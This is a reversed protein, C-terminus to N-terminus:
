IQELVTCIIWCGPDKLLLCLLSSLPFFLVALDSDLNLLFGELEVTNARKRRMMKTHSPLRFYPHGSFQWLIHIEKFHQRIKNMTRIASLSSHYLLRGLKHLEFLSVCFWAPIQIWQPPPSTNDDGAYVSCGWNLFWWNNLQGTWICLSAKWEEQYNPNENDKEWGNPSLIIFGM